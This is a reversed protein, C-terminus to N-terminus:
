TPRVRVSPRSPPASSEARLDALMARAISARGPPELPELKEFAEAESGVLEISFRLPRLWGIATLTYRVVASRSVVVARVHAPTEGLCHAIERRWSANPDESGRDIVQLSHADPRGISVRNGRRLAECYRGWDQDTNPGATFLWVSFCEHEDIRGLFM